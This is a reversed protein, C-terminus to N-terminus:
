QGLLDITLQIMVLQRRISTLLQRRITKLVEPLSCEGEILDDFSEGVDLRRCWGKLSPLTRCRYRSRITQELGSSELLGDSSVLRDRSRPGIMHRGNM